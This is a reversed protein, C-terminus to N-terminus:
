QLYHIHLPLTRGIRYARGRIQTFMSDCIPHFLILDTAEQLNIGAGSDMSNIFLVNLDHEKFDQIVKERSIMSGKIEGFHIDNERMTERILDFTEQFSSFIIIKGDPQSRIIQLIKDIKSPPMETLPPSSFSVNPVNNESVYLLHENTIKRRCLPCSNKKQFWQLVCTGCFMNQCCTLLIPQSKKELCISCPSAYLITQIRETLQGLDHQYQALREKWKAIKFEDGIRQFREIKWEAQQICDKKDKEILEFLNSTSNGGLCKVAGEVNGASILQIIPESILDKVVHFVPQFCAHSHHFLPPLQFSKKVFDDENKVILNKYLNYDMYQTFISSLFNHSYRHQQLLLEPTATIFWIFGAIVQRMSTIKTHTPEDYIFRKWAYSPFRELLLNYFTPSCLVVDYECPDMQELKKKNSIVCFRLSTEELEDTWQKLISTGAVILNTAIRKLSVLSKKVICGNGYVGSIFSQVHEEQVKWDMKDRLILGLMSITKGYGTMDSYISMNLDICYTSHVIRKQEERKEMMLIASIQHPYLNKKMMSNLDM